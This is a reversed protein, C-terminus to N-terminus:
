AGKEEKNERLLFGCISVERLNTGAKPSSFNADTKLYVKVEISVVYPDKGIDM